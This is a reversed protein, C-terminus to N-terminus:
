RRRRVDCWVASYSSLLPSALSEGAARPAMYLGAHEPNSTRGNGIWDKSCIPSGAARPTPKDTTLRGLGKIKATALHNIIPPVTANVVLFVVPAVHSKDSTM